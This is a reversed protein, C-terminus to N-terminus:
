DISTYIGVVTYMYPIYMCRVEDRDYAHFLSLSPDTRPSSPGSSERRRLMSHGGASRPMQSRPCICDVRPESALHLSPPTAPPRHQTLAYRPSTPLPYHPPLHYTPLHSVLTTHTRWRLPRNSWVPLEGSSLCAVFLIWRAKASSPKAQRGLNARRAHCSPPYGRLIQGRVAQFSFLSFISLSVNFKM